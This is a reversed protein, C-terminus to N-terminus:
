DGGSIRRDISEFSENRYQAEMSDFERDCHRRPETGEIFVERRVHKCRPMSLLGTEECIVRHVIGEPEAFPEGRHDRYHAKMVDTWVPLSARAGTMNRGM